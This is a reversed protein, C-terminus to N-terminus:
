LNAARLRSEHDAAMVTLLVPLREYQVAEAVRNKGRTVLRPDILDVVEAGMGYFEQYPNDAPARSTYKIAAKALELVIPAVKEPTLWDVVNKYRLSSTSRLLNNLSASDLFANAASATTGISAFHVSGGARIGFYEATYGQTYWIAGGGAGVFHEFNNSSDLGVLPVNASDTANRFQIAMTLRPLRLQGATAPTTGLAIAPAVVSTGFYGTRPRTAGAAGIDYTNDTFLVNGVFTGGAKPMAADATTGQAATAYASAATYAASGLTGGAGIALTSGDTATLTLTNSNTLTKGAGLTLTGSGATWTNGNYSKNTLAEAGALTALTGSPPLTVSTPASITLTTAFVGSITLTSAANNAVGTGGNAPPLVGSVHAALDVKGWSPTAGSVLVNGGAAAALMAMTNAGSAYALDGTAAANPLTLTSTVFNTGDGRPFTGAGPAATPWAPTSAAYDVGNSQLVKGVAGVGGLNALPLRGSVDTTLEVAAWAPPGVANGHLVQISTGLGVPTSPVAGAGGGLVIASAILAASSALTTPATFALVGGSIGSALGTGGDVVGLVGGAPVSLNAQWAGAVEDYWYERRGSGPDWQTGDALRFMGTRPKPPEVTTMELQGDALQQSFTALRRYEELLYRLVAEKDELNPVLEPEYRAFSDRTQAVM